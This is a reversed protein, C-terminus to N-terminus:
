SGVTANERLPTFEIREEQEDETEPVDQSEDVSNEQDQPPQASPICCSPPLDQRQGVLNEDDVIDKNRHRRKKIWKSFFYVVVVVIIISVGISITVGVAFLSSFLLVNLLTIFKLQTASCKLEARQLSTLKM